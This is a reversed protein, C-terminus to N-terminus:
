AAVVPVGAGQPTYYTAPSIPSLALPNLAMPPLHPFPPPPLGPFPSHGTPSLPSGFALHDSAGHPRWAPFSGKKVPSVTM